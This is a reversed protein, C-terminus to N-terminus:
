DAFKGSNKWIFLYILLEGLPIFVEYITIVTSKLMTKACM